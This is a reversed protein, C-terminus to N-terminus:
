APTAMAQLLALAAPATMAFPSFRPEAGFQLYLEGRAATAPAFGMTWRGFRREDVATVELLVLRRHRPDKAIRGYVLSVVERTGELVQLFGAADFALMGTLNNRLNAARAHKLISEVSDLSLAAEPESAYILRTLMHHELTTFLRVLGHLEIGAPILV